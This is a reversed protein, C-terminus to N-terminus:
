SDETGTPAPQAKGVDAAAAASPHDADGNAEAREDLLSMLAGAETYLHGYTRLLATISSFGGLAVIQEPHVRERIWIAVASHRLDRMWLPGLGAEDVAPTWYRRHLLAPSLPRNDSAGFVLADGATEDNGDNEDQLRALSSVMFEPLPLSRVRANAKPPGILLRGDLETMTEVIHLRRGALDVHEWRLGLLEGLRLGCFGALLVSPRYRPHMAHALRWIEEDALLRMANEEIDPLPLDAAPNDTILGEDVAAALCRSLIRAVHHITPARLDVTEPDGLDTVWDILVARDLRDLGLEGLAPVIYSQAYREDRAAAGPGPNTVTPWWVEFWDELTLPPESQDDEEDPWSDEDPWADEDPWSDEEWSDEESNDDQWADDEGGEDDSWAEGPVDDVALTVAQVEVPAPTAPPAEAGRRGRRRLVNFAVLVALVGLASAAVVALLLSRGGRGSSAGSGQNAGSTSASSGSPSTVITTPTAGTPPSVLVSTTGATSPAQTRAATVDVATQYTRPGVTLEVTHRGPQPLRVELRYQGTLSKTLADVAALLGGPGPAVASGGVAAALSAVAPDVRTGTSLVHLRVGARGLADQLPALTAGALSQDSVLAIVHRRSGVEPLEAAMRGLARVLEPAGGAPKAGVKAINGIVVARDASAGGAVGSTSAVAIRTGADVDRALELTAGQAATIAPRTAGAGDDFVLGVALDAPDLRTADLVEGGQVRFAGPPLPVSAEREPVALDIAVIPSRSVDVAVIQLDGAAQARAAGPAGLEVAIGVLVGLTGTRLRRLAVVAGDAV